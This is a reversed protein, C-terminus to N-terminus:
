KIAELLLCKILTLYIEINNIIIPTKQQCPTSGINSVTIIKKTLM